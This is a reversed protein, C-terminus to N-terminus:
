SAGGIKKRNSKMRAARAVVRRHRGPEGLAVPPVYPTGNKGQPDDVLGILYDLSVGYYQAFYSAVILKPESEGTEYRLVTSRNLKTGWNMNIGQAVDELTWDNALRLEKLRDKFEM